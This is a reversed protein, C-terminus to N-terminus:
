NPKEKSETSNLNPFLLIQGRFVRFPASFIFDPFLFKGAFLAFLKPKKLERQNASNAPLDKEKKRAKGRM